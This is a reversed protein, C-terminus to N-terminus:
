LEKIINPLETEDYNKLVIVQKYDARVDFQEVIIQKKEDLYKSYEFYKFAANKKMVGTFYPYQDSLLNWNQKTMYFGKIATMAKYV